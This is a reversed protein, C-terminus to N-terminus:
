ISRKRSRYYLHVRMAQDIPSLGESDISQFILRQNVGPKLYIGPGYSIFENTYLWSGPNVEGGAATFRRHTEHVLYDNVGYIGDLVSTWRNARYPHASPLFNLYDVALNHNAEVDLCQACLDFTFGGLTWPSMGRPKPPIRVIGLDIIQDGEQALIFKGDWLYFDSNYLRIRLRLYMQANPMPERLRVLVRFDQGAFDTARTYDIDWLFVREEEAGSWAGLRYKGESCTADTEETGGEADEGQVLFYNRQLDHINVTHGVYVTNIPNDGSINELTLRVPCPLDGSVRHSPIDAINSIEPTFLFYDNVVDVYKKGPYPDEGNLTYSFEHELKIETEEEDDWWNRRRITCSAMLIDSAYYEELGVPEQSIDLSGSLIESIFRTTGDVTFALYVPLGGSGAQCDEADQFWRNIQKVNIDIDDGTFKLLFTEEVIDGKSDRRPAYRVYHIGDESTLSLETEDPGIISLDGPNM